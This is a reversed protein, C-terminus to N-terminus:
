KRAQDAFYNHVLFTFDTSEYRKHCPMCAVETNV